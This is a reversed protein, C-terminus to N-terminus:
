FPTEIMFLRVRIANPIHTKASMKANGSVVPFSDPSLRISSAARDARFPISLCIGPGWRGSDSILSPCPNMGGGIAM